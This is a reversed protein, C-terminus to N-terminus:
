NVRDSLSRFSINYTHLNKHNGGRLLRIGRHIGVGVYKSSLISRTFERRANMHYNLAAPDQTFIDSQPTAYYAVSRKYKLKLYYSERM